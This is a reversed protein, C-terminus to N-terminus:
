LFRNSLEGGLSKVCSNFINPKIYNRERATGSYIFDKALTPINNM